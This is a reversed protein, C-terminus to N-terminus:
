FDEHLEYEECDAWSVRGPVKGYKHDKAFLNCQYVSRQYLVWAFWELQNSDVSRNLSSKDSFISVGKFDVVGLITGDEIIRAADRGSYFKDSPEEASVSQSIVSNFLILALMKILKSM